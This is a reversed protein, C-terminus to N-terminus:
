TGKYETKRPLHGLPIERTKLKQLSFQNGASALILFSNEPTKLIKLGINNQLAFHNRTGALILENRPIIDPSEQFLGFGFPKHNLLQKNTGILVCYVSHPFSIGLHAYSFQLEAASGSSRPSPNLRLLLRRVLCRTAAGSSNKIILTPKRCNFSESVNVNPLFDNNEDFLSNGNGLQTPLIAFCLLKQFIIGPAMTGVVMDRSFELLKLNKQLSEHLVLRILPMPKLVISFVSANKAAKELNRSKFTFM